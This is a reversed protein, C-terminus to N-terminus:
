VYEYGCTPKHGSTRIPVISPSAANSRQRVQNDIHQIVQDTGKFPDRGRLMLSYLLEGDSLQTRQHLRSAFKRYPGGGSQEPDHLLRRM